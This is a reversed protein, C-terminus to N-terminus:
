ASIGHLCRTAHISQRRCVWYLKRWALESDTHWYCPGFVFCVVLYLLFFYSGQLNKIGFFIPFLIGAL